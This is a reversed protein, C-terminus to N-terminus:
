GSRTWAADRGGTEDITRITGEKRLERLVLRITPDSVGPLAARIDRMRFVKPAHNLVHVRVREQKSLGALNRRASVRSEFDDYADAVTVVFYNIWPWITHQADHWGRQSEYLAAYYANKTDFMRQEVSAYRSVGYGARLLLHTTLLRALRGNGDAVPHIALFDLVFAGVLLVPHAAETAVADAYSEVLGRLLFETQAPPPPTFLVERYGHEYSVILNEDTKLRGGGGDTYRFLQRHLHLIYPLTVPQLDDSRMIEDIADRYGAFERENRNRFRREAGPEVLGDRREPSVTVGEIASSATISAVRTETALASLLEPLQDRYLAERGRGVDLRAIAAGLRPPQGGFTRELDVFSRMELIWLLRYLPDVRNDHNSRVLDDLDGVGLAMTAQSRWRGDFAAMGLQHVVADNRACAREAIEPGLCFGSAPM